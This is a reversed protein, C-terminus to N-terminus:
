CEQKVEVRCSEVRKDVDAEAYLVRRGDKIYPLGQGKWRDARLKSLSCRLREAVEKEVLLKQM